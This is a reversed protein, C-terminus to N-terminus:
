PMEGKERLFDVLDDELYRSGFTHLVKYGRIIYELGGSRKLLDYTETQSMGLRPALLGVCFVAFDLQDFNM